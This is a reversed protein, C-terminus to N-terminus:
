AARQARREGPDGILLVLLAAATALAVAAASGLWVPRTALPM